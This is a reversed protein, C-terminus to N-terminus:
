VPEGGNCVLGLSEIQANVLAGCAAAQTDSVNYFENGYEPSGSECQGQGNGHDWFTAVYGGEGNIQAHGGSGWDDNYCADIPGAEPDLVLAQFMPMELCQPPCEDPGAAEIPPGSTLEMECGGLAIDDIFWGQEFSCCGDLTQYEFRLTGTQGSLIATDLAISDWDDGARTQDRYECFAQPNVGGTCDVLLWTEGTDATFFIRKRDYYDGGEDVHWSRLALSDGLTIPGVTVSSSENDDGPYPALRNGDTGLAQSAFPVEALVYSPPAAGFLQWDGTAELIPSAGDFDFLVAGGSGGGSGAPRVSVGALDAECQNAYIEGNCGCVPSEEVGECSAPHSYCLGAAVDGCVAPEVFYCFQDEACDDNANCAHDPLYMYYATCPELELEDYEPGWYWTADQTANNWRGVGWFGVEDVWYSANTPGSFFVPISTWNLGPEGTVAMAEHTPVVGVLSQYPEISGDFQAVVASGYPVPFDVGGGPNWNLYSQNEADWGWVNLLSDGFRDHLDAASDIDGLMCMGFKTHGPYAATTSKMVMTSLRLATGLEEYQVLGVRYFYHPTELYLSAAGEDVWSSVGYLMTGEVGPALPEDYVIDLLARPDTSRYVVIDGYFGSASWDLVVDEGTEGGLSIELPFGRVVADHDYTSLADSAPAPPRERDDEADLEAVDHSDPEANCAPGMALAAMTAVWTWNKRLGSYM